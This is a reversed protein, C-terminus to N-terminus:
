ELWLLVIAAIQVMALHTTPRVNTMGPRWGAGSSSGTSPGSWTTRLRAAHRGSRRRRDRRAREDCGEGARYQDQGSRPQGPMPSRRAKILALSQRYCRGDAPRMPFKGAAHRSWGHRCSRCPNPLTKSRASRSPTRTKTAGSSAGVTSRDIKLRSSAMRCRTSRPMPASANRLARGRQDESARHGHRQVDGVREDGRLEAPCREVSKARQQQDASGLDAEAQELQEAGCTANPCRSRRLAPASSRRVAGLTGLRDATPSADAANPKMAHGALWASWDPGAAPGPPTSQRRQHRAKVAAADCPAQQPARRAGAARGPACSPPPSRSPEQGAVIPFMHEIAGDNTTAEGLPARVRARSRGAAQSPAARRVTASCGARSAPWPRAPPHRHAAAPSPNLAAGPDAVRPGPPGPPCRAPGGGAARFVRSRSGSGVLLGAACSREAGGM